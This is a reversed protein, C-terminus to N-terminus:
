KFAKHVAEAEVKRGEGSEAIQILLKEMTNTRENLLASLQSAFVEGM